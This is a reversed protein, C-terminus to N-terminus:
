LEIDKPKFTPKPGMQQESAECPGLVVMFIEPRTRVKGKLEYRLISKKLHFQLIYHPVNISCNM